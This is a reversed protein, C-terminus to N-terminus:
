KSKKTSPIGINKKIGFKERLEILKSCQRKSLTNVNGLQHAVFQIKAAHEVTEMKHYADLVTKGLTVVGHNALLFADYDNVYKALMESLENTGTTGYEVLPIAGLVIIVEPLVMKNLPVGAVAFGTSYPPHSHCISMVDHRAKYIQLHMNTESSQKRNGEVINGDLNLVILDSTQMFGKSVGTPTILITDNSLRISINGDNSAVYGRAYIRKGIEVIQKKQELTHKM